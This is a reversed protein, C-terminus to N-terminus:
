RAAAAVLDRHEPHKALWRQVYPCTAVISLGEARAHEVAAQALAEGVGRGRLAPSVETHVLELVRPESRRYILEGDGEPLRVLFRGHGSDNEVKM